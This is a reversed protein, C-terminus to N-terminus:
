LSEISSIFFGKKSEKKNEIKNIKIYKNVNINNYIVKLWFIDLGIFISMICSSLINYETNKFLNIINLWLPLRIFIISFIRFLRTLYNYKNNILSLWNLASIIEAISGYTMIFYNKYYYFTIMCIIHHFLLDYRIKKSYFFYWIDYIMYVFMFNNILLSSYTANLMPFQKLEKWNYSTQYFSFLTILLCYISRYISHYDKDSFNKKIFQRCFMLVTLINLM